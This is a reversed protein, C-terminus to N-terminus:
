WVHTSEHLVSIRMIEEIMRNDMSRNIWRDIWRDRRREM